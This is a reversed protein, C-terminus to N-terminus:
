SLILEALHGDMTCTHRAPCEVFQTFLQHLNTPSAQDPLDITEILLEILFTWGQMLCKPQIARRTHSCRPSTLGCQSNSTQAPYDERQTFLKPQITWGKPSYSSGSLEGKTHAARTSHDMKASQGPRRIELWQGRLLPSM